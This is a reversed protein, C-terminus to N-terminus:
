VATHIAARPRAAAKKATGSEAGLTSGIKLLANRIQFFGRGSILFGEGMGASFLGDIDDKLVLLLLRFMKLHALARIALRHFAREVGRGNALLL